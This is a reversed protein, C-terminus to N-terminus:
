ALRTKGRTAPSESSARHNQASPATFAQTTIVLRISPSIKTTIIWDGRRRIRPAGFYTM